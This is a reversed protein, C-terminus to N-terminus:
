PVEIGTDRLMTCLRILPLGILASPDSCEMHDILTIGLSESKFSCACDFPQDHDLYHEIARASLQRFVISTNVTDVLVTGNATDLVCIGTRFVVAKGSVLELQQRAPTRSGPKGIIQGDLDAVQDSGIVLADPYRAGVSRAKGTALREVLTTIAEGPIPSEAFDPSDCRFPLGLKELLQARYPSTSALSILRQEPASTLPNNETV